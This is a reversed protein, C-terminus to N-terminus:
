ATGWGKLVVDRMTASAMLVVTGARDPNIMLYVRDGTALGLYELLETPISVNHRPGSITRPEPQGPDVQVRYSM